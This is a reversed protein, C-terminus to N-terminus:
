KKGRNRAAIYGAMNGSAALGNLDVGGGGNGGRGPGQPKPIPVARANAAAKRAARGFAADSIMQQAEASRFLPNSNWLEVIREHPLGLDKTLYETARAQLAEAKAPDALDPMLEAARQDQAQCYKAFQERAQKHHEQQAAAATERLAKEDGQQLAAILRRNLELTTFSQKWQEFRGPNEKSLKEVDEPTKLDAFDRNYQNVMGAFEDAAAKHVVAREQEGRLQKTLTEADAHAKDIESQRTSFHQERKLAREKQAPSLEAWEAADETAWSRPMDPPRKAPPKAEAGDDAADHMVDDIPRRPPKNAPEDIDRPQERSFDPRPPRVEIIEGDVRNEVPDAAPAPATADILNSAPTADTM